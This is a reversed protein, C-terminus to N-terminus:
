SNREIIFFYHYVVGNPVSGSPVSASPISFVTGASGISSGIAVYSVNSPSDSYGYVLTYTSGTQTPVGIGISSGSIQGTITGFCFLSQGVIMSDVQASLRSTSLNINNFRPPIATLGNVTCTGSIALVGNSPFSLQSVFLNGMAINGSSDSQLCWKGNRGISFTEGSTGNKDIGIDWYSTAAAQGALRIGAGSMGSTTTYPIHPNIIMVWHDPASSYLTPYVTEGGWSLSTGGITLSYSASNLVTLANSVYGNGSKDLQLSFGNYDHSWIGFWGEPNTGPTGGIRGAWWLGAQAGQSVSPDAGYFIVSQGNSARGLRIGESYNNPLQGAADVTLTGYVHAATSPTTTNIGVNGGSDILFRAVGNTYISVSHNTNKLYVLETDPNSNTIGIGASDAYTYGHETNPGSWSIQGVGYTGFVGLTYGPTTTGIGLGTSTLTAKTSGGVQLLLGNTGNIIGNGSSDTSLTMPNTLSTITGASSIQLSGLASTLSSQVMFSTLSLILVGNAYSIYKASDGVFFGSSTLYASYGSGGINGENIYLGNNGNRMGLRVVTTTGQNILYSADQGILWDGNNYQVPGDITLYQGAKAWFGYNAVGWTDTSVAWYTTNTPLTGAPSATTCKYTIGAYFAYEGVSYPKTSDWTSGNILLGALYGMAAATGSSGIVSIRSNSPDLLLYASGTNSQITSNITWGGITGSSATLVGAATVSFANGLTIGATGISVYNSTGATGAFLSGSALTMGGIRGASSYITGRVTVNNFEASGDPNISWGSVGTAYNGSAVTAGTITLGGVVSFALQVLANGSGGNNFNFNGRNDVKVRWSSSPSDYYGFADGIFYLGSSPPTTGTPLYNGVIAQKVSGQENIANQLQTLITSQQAPNVSPPTVQPTLLTIASLAKIIYTFTRSAYNFRKGTIIGNVAIGNKAISLATLEGLPVDDYSDIQYSLKNDILNTKIAKALNTIQRPNAQAVNCTFQTSTTGQTSLSISNNSIDALSFNNADIVVVVYDTEAQLHSPLTDGSNASFTVLMSTKLGHNPINISSNSTNVASPKFHLQTLAMDFIYKCDYKKFNLRPGNTGFNNAPQGAINDWWPAAQAAIVYDSILYCWEIQTTITNLLDFTVLINELSGDSGQAHQLWFKINSPTFTPWATGSSASYSAVVSATQSGDANITPSIQLQFFQYETSPNLAAQNWNVFAVFLWINQMGIVKAGSVSSSPFVAHLHMVTPGWAKNDGPYSRWHSYDDIVNPFDQNNDDVNQAGAELAPNHPPTTGNAFPNTGQTFGCYDMAQTYYQIQVSDEDFSSKRFKLSKDIINSNTTDDFQYIAGTGTQSGYWQVFRMVGTGDFYCVWGYEWLFENLIDQVKQGSPAMFITMWCNTANDFSQGFVGQATDFNSDITVQQSIGISLLYTNLKNIIQHIVSETITTKNALWLGGTAISSIQIPLPLAYRLLYSNDQCSIQILDQGSWTFDPSDVPLIFGAFIQVGNAYVRIPLLGTSPAFGAQAQTTASTPTWYTTNTLATGAPVTTPNTTSGNWNATYFSSGSYVTQGSICTLASNWQTAISAPQVDSYWLFKLFTTQDFVMTFQLQSVVPQFNENCLEFDYDFNQRVLSTIDAWVGASDPFLVEYQYTYQAGILGM